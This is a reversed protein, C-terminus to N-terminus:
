LLFDKPTKDTIGYTYKAIINLVKCLDKMEEYHECKRMNGTAKYEQNFIPILYAEAYDKIRDYVHDDM